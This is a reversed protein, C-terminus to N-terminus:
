STRPHNASQAGVPVGLGTRSLIFKSTLRIRFSSFMEARRFSAPIRGMPPESGSAVAKTLLSISLQTSHVNVQFVQRWLDTPYETMATRTGGLAANSVVIDLRDTHAALLASLSAADKLSGLDIPIAEANGGLGIIEETAAQLATHDRALLLCKVGDAALSKAVALGLGRSAGTVLACRQASASSPETM